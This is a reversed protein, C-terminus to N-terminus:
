AGAREVTGPRVTLLAREIAPLLPRLSEIRNSRARVLVLGINYRSLDQEVPMNKDMSIIVDFEKAALKLLKGNAIGKWQMQGVSRVEHASLEAILDAPM